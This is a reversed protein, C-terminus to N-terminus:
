MIAGVFRIYVCSKHFSTHRFASLSTKTPRPVHTGALTIARKPGPVSVALNRAGSSREPTNRGVKVGAQLTAQPDSLTMPFPVM